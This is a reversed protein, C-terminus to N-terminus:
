PRYPKQALSLNRILPLVPPGSDEAFVRTSEEEIIPGGELQDAQMEIRMRVDAPKAGQVFIVYDAQTGPQLTPLADFVLVTAGPRPDGLNHNVPAKARTLTMAEPIIATLRLNTVPATGTNRIVIPYSTAGGVPIPDDTDTMELLLASIGAFTTCFEAQAKAGKDALATAQHCLVGMQATKLAVVVSRSAGAELTGLLWAVKNVQNDLLHKGGDSAQVFSTKPALACDVLLNTAPAKGKNTVTLFYRTAMNLYQTKPGEMTLTLQPVAAAGPVTEKEAPTKPGPVVEPPKGGPPQVEGPLAALRTTVCQGHEFAVRTCNRVDERNLPQLVLRIDLVAGGKMTGLRWELEPERAHPEPSARVFRANPPVANKVVVQHAEAPSDNCVRIRYEVPEGQKGCAPVRVKKIKVVPTPPDNLDPVPPPACPEAIDLALCGATGPQFPVVPVLVPCPLPCGAASQGYLCRDEPTIGPVFTFLSGLLLLIATRFRRM